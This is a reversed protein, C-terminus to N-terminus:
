LKLDLCKKGGRVGVAVLIFNQYGMAYRKDGTIPVDIGDKRMIENIKKEEPSPNHSLFISVTEDCEMQMLKVLEIPVKRKIFLVGIGKYKDLCKNKLCFEKQNLDNIIESKIEILDDGDEFEVSKSVMSEFFLRSEPMIEIGNGFKDVKILRGKDYFDLGLCIGVNGAEVVKFM